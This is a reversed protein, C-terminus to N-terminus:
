QLSLAFPAGPGECQHVQSLVVALGCSNTSVSSVICLTGWGRPTKTKAALTPGCSSGGHPSQFPVAEAAGGRAKMVALHIFVGRIRRRRADRSSRGAHLGPRCGQSCLWGRRELGPPAGSCSACFGLSDAGASEGGFWAILLFHCAWGAWHWCFRGGWAVPLPGRIGTGQGSGKADWKGRGACLPDLSLV